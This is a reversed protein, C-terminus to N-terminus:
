DQDEEEESVEADTEYYDYLTVYDSDTLDERAKEKSGKKVRDVARIKLLKGAVPQEDGYSMTIADEDVDEEAVGFAAMLFKVVDGAFAGKFKTCNICITFTEDTDIGDVTSEKVKLDIFYLEDGKKVYKVKQVECIHKAAKHNPGPPLWNTDGYNDGKRVEASKVRAAFSMKRKGKEELEAGVSSASVEVRKPWSGAIGEEVVRPLAM